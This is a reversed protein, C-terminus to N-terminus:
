AKSSDGGDHNKGKRRRLIVVAAATGGALILLIIWSRALFVALNELFDVFGRCASLLANGLRAGFTVAPAEVNSLRAVVSLAITVTAYQSLSDYHRLTGTLREIELETESIASEITIIETMDEAQGLLAQLRELKTRQTTLRAEIDYYAESVDEANQSSDLVHCIQGVQSLFEQFHEAPIRVTYSAYRYSGTNTTHQDEFHGSLAETAQALAQAASDFSTTEVILNATYIMKDGSPNVATPSVTGTEGGATEAGQMEWSDGATDVNGYDSGASSDGAGSSCATLLLMLALLLGLCGTRKM